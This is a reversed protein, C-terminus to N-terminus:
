VRIEGGPSGRKNIDMGFMGKRLMYPLAIPILRVTLLFGVVSFALNGLIFRRDAPDIDLATFLYVAPFISVLFLIAVKQAKRLGGKSHNKVAANTEPKPAPEDPNRQLSSSKAPSASEVKRNRLQRGAEAM